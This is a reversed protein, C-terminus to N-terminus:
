SVDRRPTWCRTTVGITNWTNIGLRDGAAVENAGPM